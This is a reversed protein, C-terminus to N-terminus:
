CIICKKNKDKDIANKSYVNYARVTTTNNNLKYEEVFIPETEYYDLFKCFFEYNEEELAKNGKNIVATTYANRWSIYFVVFGLLLAVIIYLLKKLM